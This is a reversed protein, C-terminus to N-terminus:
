AALIRAVLEARKLVRGNDRIGLGRSQALKRLQSATMMTIDPETPQPQALLTPRAFQPELKLNVPRLITIHTSWVKEAPEIMKTTLTPAEPATKNVSRNKIAAKAKAVERERVSKPAITMIAIGECVAGAVKFFHKINM